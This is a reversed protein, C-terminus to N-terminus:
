EEKSYKVGGYYRDTTSYSDNIISDYPMYSTTKIRMIDEMFYIFKDTRYAKDVSSQIKKMMDPHNRWYKDTGYVVMPIEVMHKNRENESSHGVFDRGDYVENGHDSIYVIIANEDKFRKIIEGIIFDTYYITNDYEAKVENWSRDGEGEDEAHFKEFQEPYRMNFVEHSGEIHVVYFNKDIDKKRDEDIIPLLDEDYPRILTGSAGGEVSTFKYYDCRDALIKDMNGYKGIPSQNSLWVTRYGAMKAVDIMNQHKYWHNEDEKEAFTFILEMARSTYNAPAIVDTFAFAKKNRLEEDLFPTTCNKYGYASMKNRDASEGLIFIVYPTDSNNELIKEDSKDFFTKIENENGITNIAANVDMMVRSFLLSRYGVKDVFGAMGRRYTTIGISISGLLSLMVLMYALIRLAENDMSMNIYWRWCLYLGVLILLFSIVMGPSFVYMKLFEYITYPDAALVIEIKAEDLFSRFITLLIADTIFILASIGFVCWKIVTAIKRNLGNAYEIFFILLTSCLVVVTEQAFFTKLQPKYGGGIMSIATTSNLTALILICIAKEQIKKILDSIVKM